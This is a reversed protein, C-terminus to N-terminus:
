NNTNRIYNEFKNAERLKEKLDEDDSGKIQKRIKRLHKQPIRWKTLIWKICEVIVHRPQRLTNDAITVILVISWKYLIKLNNEFTIKSNENYRLWQNTNALTLSLILSMRKNWNSFIHNRNISEWIIYIKQEIRNPYYSYKLSHILSNVGWEKEEHYTGISNEAIYSLVSYVLEEWFYTIMM